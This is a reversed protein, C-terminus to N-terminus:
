HVLQIPLKKTIDSLAQPLQTPDSVRVFEGSGRILRQLNAAATADDDRDFFVVYVHVGLTWLSDARQQALALLQASNLTPNKGSSSAEPQGDSVLVVTKGGAPMTYSPDSYVALAEDFGSSIDTGSCVPMGTSGCLQISSFISSLTSYNSNINVLSSLTKGWGTHVVIAM